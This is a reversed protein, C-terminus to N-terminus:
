FLITLYMQVIIVLVNMRLRVIYDNLLIFIIYHAQRPLSDIIYLQTFFSYMYLILKSKNLGSEGWFM